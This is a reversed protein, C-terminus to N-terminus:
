AVSWSTCGCANVDASFPCSRQAERQPWMVEIIVAKPSLRFSPHPGSGIDVRHILFLIRVGAPFRTEIGRDNVRVNM